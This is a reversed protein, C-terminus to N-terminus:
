CTHSHTNTIKSTCYSYTGGGQTVQWRCIHGTKQSLPAFEWTPEVPPFITTPMPFGENEM